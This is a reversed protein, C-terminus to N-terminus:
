ADAEALLYLWRILPVDGDVSDDEYNHYYGYALYVDGNKQQLIYYLVPSSASDDIMTWAKQNDERLTKASMNDPWMGNEFFYDDFNEKTLSTEEVSGLLRWQEMDTKDAWLMDGKLMLQHDSTLYYQPANESMYAFSYKPGDYVIASVKWAAGFPERAETRSVPNAACVAVAIVCLSIAAATVNAKPAKWRLVNKIRGRVGSEAFALPNPQPFRRNAAFSLLTMSYAKRINEDGSLVKEDCSMEMDRGMLVFALWCLPNFWHIVLLLFALLRVIHDRRKLHFREHKLVYNLSATDLGFPIYIRPRFIGLIFPSCVRDSQYVNDELLVANDMRRHLRVWSIISYVFMVAMGACWFFVAAAMWIQMPNVSTMPSAAPLSSNIVHDVSSIGVSVEPQAMMGIQEPVYQLATGGTSQVGAMDFWKLNFISFASRFSVPCCLRFGVVSWLLYAYKKPARFLLLRMLIVAAIVYSATISMNLVKLFVAEM